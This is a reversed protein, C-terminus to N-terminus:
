LQLSFDNWGGFTRDTNSNLTIQNFIKQKQCYNKVVAGSCLCCLQTQGNNCTYFILKVSSFRPAATTELRGGRPIM